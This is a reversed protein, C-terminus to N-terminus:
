SCDLNQHIGHGRETHPRKSQKNKMITIDLELNIASIETKIERKRVSKRRVSAHLIIKQMQIQVAVNNQM